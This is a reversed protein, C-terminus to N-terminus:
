MIYGAIRDDNVAEHIEDTENIIRESDLESIGNTRGKVAKDIEDIDM